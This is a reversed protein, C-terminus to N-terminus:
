PEEEEEDDLRDIVKRLDACNIAALDGPNPAEVVPNFPLYTTADHIGQRGLKAEMDGVTVICDLRHDEDLIGKADNELFMREQRLLFLLYSASRQDM